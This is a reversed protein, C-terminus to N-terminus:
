RVVRTVMVGVVPGNAGTIELVSHGAKLPFVVMKRITTCDPGHAHATSAVLAGDRVVDIWADTGLEVQYDGAALITIDLLGGFTEAGGPRDPRAPFVVEANPRLMANVPRAVWLPAQPLGAATAAAAVATRRPWAALPAPLHADM